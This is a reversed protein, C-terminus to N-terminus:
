GPQSGQRPLIAFLFPTDEATVLFPIPTPSLWDGPPNSSDWDPYHPTMIDAELQVPKIPIADLFCFNGVEQKKKPGFMSDVQDQCPDGQTSAWARVLGKVSSGALYPTGLAPHWAFGNEVPHSRGLGTVFRGETRFVAWRGGRGKALGALRQAHEDLLKCDGLQKHAVTKIWELKDPAKMEACPPKGKELEFTWEHCFKDFWLGAHGNPLLRPEESTAPKYLPRKM